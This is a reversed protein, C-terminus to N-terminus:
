DGVREVLLTYDGMKEDHSGPMDMSGMGGTFAEIIARNNTLTVFYEGDEKAYMRSAKAIEEMGPIDPMGSMGSMGGGALEDMAETYGEATMCRDIYAALSDWGGTYNFHSTVSATGGTGEAKLFEVETSGPPLRLGKVMYKNGCGAILALLALCAILMTVRM